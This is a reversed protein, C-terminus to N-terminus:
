KDTSIEPPVPDSEGAGDERYTIIGSSDTSWECGDGDKVKKRNKMVTGAANVLRTVNKVRIAAYKQESDAKQIKGKYYLKNQYVGSFGIGDNQFYYSADDGSMDVDSKIVGTRMSCDSVSGGFYYYENDIVHVGYVAYGYENFLYTKDNIRAKVFSGEQACRPVGQGNFYFYRVESTPAVDAPPEIAFWTNTIAEGFKFGDTTEDEKFYMYGRMVPKTEKILRWGTRLIGNQDFCYKSNGITKCVYPEDKSFYKKCTSSDFYFWGTKEKGETYMDHPIDLEQFGTTLIGDDPEAYYTYDEIWGKQLEGETNFYYKYGEIEKVGDTYLVGNNGAYYFKDDKNVWSNFAVYGDSTVYYKQRDVEVFQDYVVAGGDDYYRYYEGTKEVSGAFCVNAFMMIFISNLIIYFLKKM